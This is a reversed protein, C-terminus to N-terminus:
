SEKAESKSGCLEISCTLTLELAVALEPLFVEYTRSLVEQAELQVVLGPLCAKADRHFLPVVEAALDRTKSKIKDTQAVVIVSMGPTSGDAATAPCWNSATEETQWSDPDRGNNYREVLKYLCQSIAGVAAGDIKSLVDNYYNEGLTVTFNCETYEALLYRSQSEFASESYVHRLTEVTIPPLDNAKARKQNLKELLLVLSQFEETESLHFKKNFSEVQRSNKISNLDQETIVKLDGHFNAYNSVLVINSSM